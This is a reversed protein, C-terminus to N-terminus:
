YTKFTGSSVFALDNLLRPQTLDANPYPINGLTNM